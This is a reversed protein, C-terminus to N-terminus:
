RAIEEVTYGMQKIEEIVPALDGARLHLTLDQEQEEQFRVMNLSKIEVGLRNIAAIVKEIDNGQRCGHVAIRQGTMGIGLIPNLIKYFFDNTTVIGVLRGDEMVLLSGVKKSQALSVAEEVTTSPSVTVVNRNMAKEVTLKHLLYSLEHISFTTLQSPGSRDLADKTVIGVLRGRDVVPLRRFGHADLIRRAEALSTHGPITVVNTSMVDSVHM